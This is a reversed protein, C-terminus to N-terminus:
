PTLTLLFRKYERYHKRPLPTLHTQGFESLKSILATRHKDVRAYQLARLEDLTIPEVKRWVGVCRGWYAITHSNTYFRNSGDDLQAVGLIKISRQIM